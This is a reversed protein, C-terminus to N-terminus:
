KGLRIPQHLRNHARRNIIPDHEAIGTPHPSRGLVPRRLPRDQRNTLDTGQHLRNRLPIPRQHEQRHEATQAPTLKRREPPAINVQCLARDPDLARKGLQAAAPVQITWRLRSRTPPHHDNDLLERRWRRVHAERIDAVAQNGFFPQLHRALVYGYVQVTNPRLNPRERIWAQAYDGFTVRGTDPNLWHDDHIEVETRALWREADTKTAFTSPAPRDLGDPGRYRAQYRGSPLRRVRGLAAGPSGDRWGRAAASSRSWLVRLSSSPWRRNLYACM